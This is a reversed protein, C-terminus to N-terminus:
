GGAVWAEHRYRDMAERLAAVSPGQRLIARSVSPLTHRIVPAFRAAVDAMSAGQDGVGPALILATPLRSFIAARDADITAGVVAGVPGLGPGLAANYATIDDALAEAVGRGDARRADQLALGEPNSSRVVVFAAAGRSAALDFVPRLADFGLYATLTVADGAFGSEAGALGEGYGVMTSLVDGRKADILSLAGQARIQAVAEALVAMGPAGLREFFGAQPKIVAIHDGAAELVTHCFRALGRADPEFGWQAVLEASPDLGLCLPSRRQALDLFRDAFPTV